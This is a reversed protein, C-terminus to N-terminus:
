LSRCGWLGAKKRHAAAEAAALVGFYRANPGIVMAQAFGARILEAALFRGRTTWLYALRRGYHDYAERDGALRLVSGAPALRRLARTANVGFCDHRTWTEPADVGILRVRVARGWMRLILTDGDVVRVVTATWADPPPGPGAAGPVAGGNAGDPLRKVDPAAGGGPIWGADRAPGDAGPSRPVAPGRRLHELLPTAGITRDAGTAHAGCLVTLMAAGALAWRRM